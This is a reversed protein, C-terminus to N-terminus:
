TVFLLPTALEYRMGTLAPHGLVVVKPARDPRRRGRRGQRVGPGAEFVSASDLKFDKM